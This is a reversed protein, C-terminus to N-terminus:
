RGEVAAQREITIYGSCVLIRAVLASTAVGLMSLFIPFPFQLQDLIYKNLLILSPGIIVYAGCALVTQIFGFPSDSAANSLAAAASTPMANPLPKGHGHSSM